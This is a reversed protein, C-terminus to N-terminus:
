TAGRVTARRDTLSGREAAQGGQSVHQRNLSGTLNHEIHRYEGFPLQIFDSKPKPLRRGCPMPKLVELKRQKRLGLCISVRTSMSLSALLGKCAGNTVHKPEALLKCKQSGRKLSERRIAITSFRSVQGCASRVGRLGRAHWHLSCDGSTRQARSTGSSLCEANHVLHRCSPLM